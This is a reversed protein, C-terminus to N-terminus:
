LAEEGEEVGTIVAACALWVAMELEKGDFCHTLWTRLRPVRQDVEEGGLWGGWGWCRLELVEWTEGEGVEGKWDGWVGGSFGQVCNIESEVLGRGCRRTSSCRALVSLGKGCLSWRRYAVVQGHGARRHHDARASLFGCKDGDVARRRAIDNIGAHERQITSDESRRQHNLSLTLPISQTLVRFM